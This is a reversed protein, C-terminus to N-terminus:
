RTISSQVANGSKVEDILFFTLSVGFGLCAVVLLNDLHHRRVAAFLRYVVVLFLLVYAFAGTWGYLMPLAFYLNHLHGGGIIEGPKLMQSMEGTGDM